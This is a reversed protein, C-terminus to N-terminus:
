ETDVAAAPRGGPRIVLQVGALEAATNQVRRRDVDTLGPDFDGQIEVHDQGPAFSLSGSRPEVHLGMAALAHRHEALAQRARLVERRGHRRIVVRLRFGSDAAVARAQGVEADAATGTWFLSIQRYPGLVVMGFNPSDNLLRRIEDAVPGMRAQNDGIRELAEISGADEEAVTERPESELEFESTM